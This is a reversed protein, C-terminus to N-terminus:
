SLTLKVRLEICTGRIDASSLRDRGTVELERNVEQRIRKDVTDCVKLFTNLTATRWQRRIWTELIHCFKDRTTAGVSDGEGTRITQM